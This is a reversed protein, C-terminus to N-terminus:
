GHAHGAIQRPAYSASVAYPIRGQPREPRRTGRKHATAMGPLKTRLTGQARTPINTAIYSFPSNRETNCARLPCKHCFGLCSAGFLKFGRQPVDRLVLRRRELTVYLLRDARNQALLAMM